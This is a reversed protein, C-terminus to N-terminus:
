SQCTRSFFGCGIREFAANLMSLDLALEKASVDRLERWGVEVLGSDFGPVCLNRVDDSLQFREPRYLWEGCSASFDFNNPIDSPGMLDSLGQPTCGLTYKSMETRYPEPEFLTQETM